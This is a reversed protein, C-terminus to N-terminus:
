NMNDSLDMFSILLWDTGNYIWATLDGDATVLDTSGGKLGTSTVDFTVAATSEIVIIQGAVIGTGDFDTLTQVSAHTLYYSGSSVDPTTDIAGFSEATGIDLIGEVILDDKVTLTQEIDVHQTDGYVTIAPYTDVTNGVGWVADEASEDNAIYFQTTSGTMWVITDASSDGLTIDGTVTLANLMTNAGDANLRFTETITGDINQSFVFDTDNTARAATTEIIDLSAVEEAGTADEPQFSISMGYNNAATGTATKLVLVNTAADTETTNATFQLYDSTTASNNAVLRLTEAVAGGTDQSIVVDCDEAGTTSDVMVFDVSAQQVPTGSDAQEMVVSIGAGFGSDATDATNDLELELIDIVGNTEETYSTLEFVAGATAENDNDIRFVEALAGNTMLNIVFDTDESGNTAVASIIDFSAHEEVTGAANELDFTLSTGIGAAATGSTSHTINLVDTVTSNASDDIVLNVTGMTTVVGADSITFRTLATGSETDDCGFVLDTTAGTSTITWQEGAEDGLDASLKLTADGATDFATYVELITDADDSAIRITDDTANTILEGNDGITIAGDLITTGGDSVFTHDTIDASGYDLDIVGYGDIGNWLVLLPTSANEVGWCMDADMTSGDGAILMDYTDLYGLYQDTGSGDFIIYKDEADVGDGIVIHTITTDDVISIREDTGLTSGVGIAFDNDTDDRGIYWDDDDTDLLIYCDVATGAGMSIYPDDYLRLLGGSDTSYTYGDADTMPSVVSGWSTKTEGGLAIGYSGNPTLTGDSAIYWQDAGLTGTATTPVEASASIGWCVILAMLLYSLIKKM